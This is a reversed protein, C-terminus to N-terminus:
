MRRDHAAASSAAFVRRDVVATVEDRTAPDLGTRDLRRLALDLVDRAAGAVARDALGDRAAPLWRDVVPACRDVAADVTADDALLATLVAVPVFWEGPPQTDLYRVELYGRPRVPPFLTSLHYTLDDVTPPTPLAGALWDAFTVGRPADWSRDPRRVMLLPAALAYRAWAAAPDGAHPVPGCRAQDMHLWTRMRASAWGTERGAHRGSNAFAAVLPPGLAHVATWRAGVRDAPGAEPCVQLGATSTMMVRGHGNHRAFARAMADYRPTHLLQRPDRHPDIGSGGLALGSGALLGTLHALDADTGARLAGLSAYPPTSLEVQGGPEVTVRGGGPLPLQPSDPTVSRPAHPGLATRLLAVDVTRTPDDAHHLTWELEVGVPGPPGTKFCIKAVYAEAEDVSRLVAGPEATITM